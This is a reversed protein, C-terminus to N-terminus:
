HPPPPVIPMDDLDCIVGQYPSKKTFRTLLEPSRFIKMVIYWIRWEDKLHNRRIFSDNFWQIMSNYFVYPYVTHRCVEMINILQLLPLPDSLTMFAINYSVPVVKRILAGLSVVITAYLGVIGVSGLTSLGQSVLELWLGPYLQIFCVQYVM